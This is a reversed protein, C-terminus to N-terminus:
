LTIATRLRHNITVMTILLIAGVANHAVAIWLPLSMVVNLVGLTIQSTLVVLLVITLQRALAFDTRWLRWAFYLSLALVVLAGIRHTLHIAVRAKSELLGGLYNPGIEQWINFGKAFYAEPWLSNQCLPFDPCALAAYNSSVWGGLAIQVIVAIMAIVAIGRLKMFGVVKNAQASWRWNGLRQMLLWLLSLTAFGGLLHLTVVKPWLNLTVTWMGFLGQLIVLGAILSPLKFPVCFLILTSCM